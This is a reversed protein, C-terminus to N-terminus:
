LFSDHSRQNMNRNQQLREQMTIGGEMGHTKRQIDQLFTASSSKAALEDDDHGRGTTPLRDSRQQEHQRANSQMEQLAKAREEPTMHRRHAASEQMRKRELKEERKRRM